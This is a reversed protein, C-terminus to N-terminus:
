NQKKKEELFFFRRLKIHKLISPSFEEKGKLLSSIFLLIYRCSRVGKTFWPFSISFNFCELLLSQAKHSTVIEKFLNTTEELPQLIDSQCRDGM